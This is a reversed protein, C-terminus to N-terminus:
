AQVQAPQSTCSMDELSPCLSPQTQSEGEWPSHSPPPELSQSFSFFGALLPPSVNVSSSVVPLCILLPRLQSTQLPGACHSRPQPLSCLTLVLFMGALTCVRRPLSHACSPPVLSHYNPQHQFPFPPSLCPHSWPSVPASFLSSELWFVLHFTPHTHSPLKAAWESGTHKLLLM